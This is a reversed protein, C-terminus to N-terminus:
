LGTLINKLNEIDADTRFGQPDFHTRTVLYGENEMAKFFKERPPPSIKLKSSLEPIEYYLGPATSELRWLDTM